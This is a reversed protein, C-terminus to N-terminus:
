NNQLPDDPSPCNDDTCIMSAGPGSPVEILDEPGFPLAPQPPMGPCLILYGEGQRAIQCDSGPGSQRSQALAPWAALLMLAILPPRM